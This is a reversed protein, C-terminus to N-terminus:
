KNRMSAKSIIDFVYAYAPTQTGNQLKSSPQVLLVRSGVKIGSFLNTGARQSIPLMFTMGEQEVSGESPKAEGWKHVYPFVEVFDNEKVEEGDGERLVVAKLESPAVGNPVFEIKPVETIEGKVKVGEIGDSKFTAKKMISRNKKTTGNHIDVVFVLTANPKIKPPSGASGYGYEPPIVLLVRSGVKKGILGESWGKIVGSGIKFRFPQPRSFSEDFPEKGDLAVGYYDVTVTSGNVLTDGKGEILTKSVLEKAPKASDIKLTPKEGFNGSVSIGEVKSAYESSSCGVLCVCLIFSLFLSFFKKM